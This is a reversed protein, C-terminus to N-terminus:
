KIKDLINKFSPAIAILSFFCILVWKDNLSSGYIFISMELMVRSAFSVVNALFYTESINEFTRETCHVVYLYGLLACGYLSATGWAFIVRERGIGQPECIAIFLM